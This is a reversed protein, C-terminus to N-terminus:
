MAGDSVVSLAARAEVALAALAALAALPGLRLPPLLPPPLLLPPLLLLLLLLLPPPLLLLPGLPGLPGLRDLLARLPLLPPRLPGLPGLRDPLARLPLVLLPEFPLVRDTCDPLRQLLGLRALRTIRDPPVFRRTLESPLTSGWVGAQSLPM